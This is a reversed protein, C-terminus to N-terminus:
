LLCLIRWYLHVFSIEFHRWWFQKDYKSRPLYHNRFSSSFREWNESFHEKTNELFEMTFSEELIQYIRVWDLLMPPFCLEWLAMQKGLLPFSEMYFIGQPTRSHYIAYMGDAVGGLEEQFFSFIEGCNAISTCYVITRPFATKKKKLEDALCKFQQDIYGIANQIEKDKNRSNSDFVANFM